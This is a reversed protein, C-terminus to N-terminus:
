TGIWDSDAALTTDAKGVLRLLADRDHTVGAAPVFWVTLIYRDSPPQVVVIWGPGTGKDPMDLVRGMVTGVPVAEGGTPFSTTLALTM